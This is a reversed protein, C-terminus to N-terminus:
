SLARPYKRKSKYLLLLPLFIYFFTVGSITMVSSSAFYTRDFKPLLEIDPFLGAVEITLCITTLIIVMILFSRTSKVNVNKESFIGEKVEILSNNLGILSGMFNLDEKLADHIITFRVGDNKELYEFDVTAINPFKESKEVKIDNHISTKSQISISLIKNNEPVEVRLLNTSIKDKGRLETHGSNWLRVETSTVYKVLLDGFFITLENPFKSSKGGVISFSDKQFSLKKTQKPKLYFFLGVGIPFFFVFLGTISTQKLFDIASEFSILQEM